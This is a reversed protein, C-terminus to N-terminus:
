APKAADLLQYFRDPHDALFASYIAAQKWQFLLQYKPGFDVLPTSKLESNSPRGNDWDRILVEALARDREAISQILLTSAAKDLPKKAAQETVSSERWFLRELYEVSLQFAQFDSLNKRVLPETLILLSRLRTFPNSAPSAQGLVKALEQDNSWPTPL